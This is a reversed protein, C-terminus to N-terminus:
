DEGYTNRRSINRYTVIIKSFLKFQVVGNEDFLWDPLKPDLKFSLTQNDSAFPKHGVFMEFWMNLFEVTSGSLRAIYGKGHISQDPNASSVIFSSNELPNRGYVVPDNFMVLGT